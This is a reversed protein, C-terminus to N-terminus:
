AAVACPWSGTARGESSLYAPVVWSGSARSYVADLLPPSSGGPLVTSMFTSKRGEGAESGFRWGRDDRDGSGDDQRRSVLEDLTLILIALKGPARTLADRGGTLSSVLAAVAQAPSLVPGERFWHRIFSRFNM